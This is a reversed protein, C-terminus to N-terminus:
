IGKLLELRKAVSPFNMSNEKICKEYNFRLKGLDKANGAEVGELDLEKLCLFQLQSREEACTLVNELRSEM